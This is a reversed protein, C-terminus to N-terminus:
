KWIEDEDQDKWEDILSASHNSYASIESNESVSQSVLCDEVIEVKDKGLNTLIYLIHEYANEKIYLKMTHM